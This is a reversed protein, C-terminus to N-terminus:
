LWYFYASFLFPFINIKANDNAKSSSKSILILLKVFARSRGLSHLTIFIRFSLLLYLDRGLAFVM